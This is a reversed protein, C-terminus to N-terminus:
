IRSGEMIKKVPLTEDILRSRSVWRQCRWKQTGRAPAARQTFKRMRPFRALCNSCNIHHFWQFIQQDSKKKGDCHKTHNERYGM